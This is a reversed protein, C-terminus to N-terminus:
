KLARNKGHKQVMFVPKRSWSKMRRKHMQGGSLRHWDRGGEKGGEREQKDIEKAIRFPLATLAAEHM